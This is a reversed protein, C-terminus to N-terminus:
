KCRSGRGRCGVADLAAVVQRCCSGCSRAHERGGIGISEDWDPAARSTKKLKENDFEPHLYKPVVLLGTRRDRLDFLSSVSVIKPLDALQDRYQRLKDLGDPDFLSDGELVIVIENDEHGFDDYLQQLQKSTANDSM